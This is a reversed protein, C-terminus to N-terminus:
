NRALISHYKYYHSDCCWQSLRNVPKSRMAAQVVALGAKGRSSGASATQQIRFNRAYEAELFLPLPKQITVTTTRRLLQALYSTLKFARNDM